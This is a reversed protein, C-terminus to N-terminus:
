ATLLGPQPETISSTNTQIAVLIDTQKKSEALMKEQPSDKELLADQIKQGFVAIDTRGAEILPSPQSIDPPITGGERKPFKLAKRQLEFEELIPDLDFLSRILISLVDQNEKFGRIHRESFGISIETEAQEFSKAIKEAIDAAGKLLRNLQGLSKNVAAEFTKPIDVIETSFVNVIMSVLRVVSTIISKFIRTLSDGIKEWAKRISEGHKALSKQVASLQMFWLIFKKMLLALELGVVLLVTFPNSILIAKMTVGLAIIKLRLITLIKSFAFAGILLSGGYISSLSVTSIGLSVTAANLLLFSITLAAIKAPLGGFLSDLGVIASSIIGLTISFVKFVPSLTGTIISSIRSFVLALDRVLLVVPEIAQLIPTLGAIALEGAASRVKRLSGWFTSMKAEAIRAARGADEFFGALTEEPFKGARFENIIGLIERGREGFIEMALGGRKFAGEPLGESIARFLKLVNITNDPRIFDELNVRLIELGEVTKPIDRSLRSLAIALATGVKRMDSGAKAGATLLALMEGFSINMAPPLAGMSELGEAFEQATRQARSQASSLFDVIQGTNEAEMGYKRMNDVVIQASRALELNTSAALNLVAPIAEISEKATLGGLVLRNLADAAEMATFQTTAGLERAVDVLKRFAKEGESGMLRANARVNIMAKEFTVAEKVALFGLRALGIGAFAVAFSKGALKGFAAWQAILSTGTKKMGKKIIPHSATSMSAGMSNGADRGMKSAQQM